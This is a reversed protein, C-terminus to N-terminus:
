PFILLPVRRALSDRFDTEPTQGASRFCFEVMRVVLGAPFLASLAPLLYPLMGREANLNWFFPQKATIKIDTKSLLELFGTVKEM